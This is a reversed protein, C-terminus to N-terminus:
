CKKFNIIKECIYDIQSKTLDPFSPLLLCENHLIQANTTDCNIHALHDHQNIPYFMGRTEIGSKYLHLELEAKNKHKIGFMWNSHSCMNDIKQFEVYGELKKRYTEFINRKKDLIEELVNLQDCLIAAQVNTMRYNYGLKDHLYRTASQGQGKTSNLFNFLDEDNVVIAGGEGSTITKNAFFSISSMLSETGSYVGNYRGFLGECNDEVIPTNPFKAKIKNIDIINGINHVLLIATNEDVNEIKDYDFNWTDLDADIPILEFIPNVLFSNWAAVYVNNPVILKTIHPYKYKLGISLLHTATTGNNLLILYKTNLYEKLRNKAEDLYVGQSSIWTSDLAKHANSLNKIYPEYIPIM